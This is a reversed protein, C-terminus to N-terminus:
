SQLDDAVEGHTGHMESIIEQRIAVKVQSQFMKGVGFSFGYLPLHTPSEGVNCCARGLL